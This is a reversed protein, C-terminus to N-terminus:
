MRLVNDDSYAFYESSNSSSNAYVIYYLLLEPTTKYLSKATATDINLGFNTASHRCRVPLFTVTSGCKVHELNEHIMVRNNKVIKEWENSDKSSLLKFIRECTLYDNIGIFSKCKYKPHTLETKEIIKKPLRFLCNRDGNTYYKKQPPSPKERWKRLFLFKKYKDKNTTKNNKQHFETIKEHAIGVMKDEFNYYSYLNKNILRGIIKRPFCERVGLIAATTITYNCCAVVLMQALSDRGTFIELVEQTTFLNHELIKFFNPDTLISILYTATLYDYRQLTNLLQSQSLHQTQFLQNCPAIIDKVYRSHSFSGKQCLSNKFVYLWTIAYLNPDLRYNIYLNHNNQQTFHRKLAHIHLLPWCDFLEYLVSLSCYTMYVNLFKNLADKKLKLVSEPLKVKMLKLQHRLPYFVFDWTSPQDFKAFNSKRTLALNFISLPDLKRILIALVGRHLKSFEFEDKPEEIQKM